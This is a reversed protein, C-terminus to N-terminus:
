ENPDRAIKIHERLMNAMNQRRLVLRFKNDKEAHDICQWAHKIRAQLFELEKKKEDSPIHKIPFFAINGKM